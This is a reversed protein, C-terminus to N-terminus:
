AGPRGGGDTPHLMRELSMMEPLVFFHGEIRREPDEFLAQVVLVESGQAELDAM